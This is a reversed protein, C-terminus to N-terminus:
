KVLFESLLEGTERFAFTDDGAPRFLEYIGSIRGSASRVRNEYTELIQGVIKEKGSLVKTGIEPRNTLKTLDGLFPVTEEPEPAEMPFTDSDFSQDKHLTHLYTLLEMEAAPPTGKLEFHINELVRIINAEGAAFALSLNGAAPCFAASSIFRLVRNQLRAERAM